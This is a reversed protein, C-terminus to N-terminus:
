SVTSHTYQLKFRNFVANYPTLKDWSLRHMGIGFADNSPILYKIPYNSIQCQANRWIVASM